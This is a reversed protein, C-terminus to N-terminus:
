GTAERDRGTFVDAILLNGAGDVAVAGPGNFEAHTAPGGDDCLVRRPRQWGRHLHEGATMAQGYFTGTSAAVVRIRNNNTDAIVLNGAGDM